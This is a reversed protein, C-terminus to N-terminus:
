ARSSGTPSASSIASTWPRRLRWPLENQSLGTLDSAFLIYHYTNAMQGLYPETVETGSGLLGHGYQIFGHPVATQGSAPIASYPVRIWFDITRTGNAVPTGTSDVNLQEGNFGNNQFATLYNPFAIMGHFQFAINPDVVADGADDAVPVYQTVDSVTLTPGHPYMALSQDRMALMRASEAADSATNFDWALTLSSRDINQTSLPSFMADFRAQRPALTPEGGAMRDRLMAFATSAPIPASTTDVLNRFAVIYQTAPKLIVAPRMFLTQRTADPEYSDLEVFYPIQTLSTGDVEFLLAAANPDMSRQIQDETAMASIDVNPFITMIPTGIGYGDLGATRRQLSM